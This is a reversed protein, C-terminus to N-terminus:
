RWAYLKGAIRASVSFSSCGCAIGAPTPTATLTRTGAFESVVLQAHIHQASIPKIEFTLATATEGVLVLGSAVVTALGLRTLNRICSVFAGHAM